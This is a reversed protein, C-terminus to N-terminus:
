FLYLSCFKVFLGRLRAKENRLGTGQVRLMSLVRGYLISFVLIWNVWASDAAYRPIIGEYVM